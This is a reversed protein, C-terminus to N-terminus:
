LDSIQCRVLSMELPLAIGKVAWAEAGVTVMGLSLAMVVPEIGDNRSMIRLKASDSVVESREVCSVHSDCILACLPPTEIM